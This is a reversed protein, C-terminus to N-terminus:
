QNKNLLELIVQSEWTIEESNLFAYSALLM